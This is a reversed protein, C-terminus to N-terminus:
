YAVRHADISGSVVTGLYDDEFSGTMEGVAPFEGEFQTPLEFWGYIDIALDGTILMNDIEGDIILSVDIEGFGVVSAICAGSGELLEGYPEVEFDVSGVCNVAIPYGAIELDVNLSVTGAYVGALEHQVLVGGVAYTLRDGNPLETKATITHTGVPFDDVEGYKGMFEFDEDQDTTWAIEDWELTDGDEDLVAGDLIVPTGLPIFDGSMPLYVVLDSNAWLEDDVDDDDAVDDDDDDDSVDDDDDDAVDDDDGEGYTDDDGSVDIVASDSCGLTLLSLSLVFVILFLEARLGM